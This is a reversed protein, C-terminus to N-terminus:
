NTPATQTPSAARIARSAILAGILAAISAAVFSAQPSIAEWIMGAAIGGLSGGLGYSAMTYFAQGRAQAQAPFWQRILSMSASHHLGFTVAHLLQALIIVVISGGSFAIMLFRIATVVFSWIWCREVSFSVFLKHQWQFMVIEAVVGLAWLLGIQTRSYGQADLWLSFLTYLPAHALLMFFSAWLFGRINKQALMDKLMAPQPSLDHVERPPLILTTVFLIALMFLLTQPLWQIGVRDFWQGAFMVAVIFGISGWVRMRGYKKLDGHSAQMAISETIPVQSSLFFAMVSLVLFISWFGLDLMLMLASVFGLLASLQVLRRVGNAGPAHDALWGWAPPGIVRAWQMPSILIGIETPTFGRGSLWLSLYPAFLGLYAFYAGFFSAIRQTSKM